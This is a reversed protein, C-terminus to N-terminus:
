RRSRERYQRLAEREAATLPGPAPIRLLTGPSLRDPDPLVDRNALWIRPWLDGDTYVLYAIARLDRDGAEVPYTGVYEDYEVAAAAEMEDAARAPPAAPRAAPAPQAVAIRQPAATRPAGLTVDAEAVIQVPRNREVVRLEVQSAAGPALDVLASDGQLSHFAPLSGADVTLRWRGPRLDALEFRGAADAVRRLTGGPGSLVVVANALASDVAGGAAVRRLTGTIRASRVLPVDLTAPRDGGTKVTLPGGAAPVRDLGVGLRDPEVAHEGDALGAVAWRGERDTIVARNGVRVPVGAVGRGTEADYVRGQARGKQHIPSVPVSVPIVYDVTQQPRTPGLPDDGVGARSRAVLRQGLPLGQELSIDLMAGSTGEPLRNGTASVRLLTLGGIRLAGDVTGTWGQRPEVPEAARGQQRRLSVSLSSGGRAGIGAQLTLRRYDDSEGTLRDLATGAEIGPHVWARGSRLTGEASFGQASRDYAGTFLEGSREEHNWRVSLWSRWGIGLRLSRREGPELAAPGLFTVADRRRLAGAEVRLGGAPMAWLSAADERAGRERGPYTSDVDVHRVGASIRPRSIQVRALRATGGGTGSAVEVEATGGRVPRVVGRASAVTGSDRGTRRLVAGEVQAAAGGVALSAGRATSALPSRRDRAAFGALTLPGASVRGGAGFGFVGPETLPTLAFANDGLQVDWRRAGVALRYLDTEGPFGPRDDARRLELDVSPSGEGGLLGSASLAPVVSGGGDLGNMRLRLQVPLRHFATGSGASPPVVEVRAAAAASASTDAAPTARLTLVSTYRADRRGGSRVRVRVERSEGAALAVEGGDVAEAQLGRDALPALVVREAVNGGNRLLFTAAYGDGAVAFRPADAPTVTLRHRVAVRIAASDSAESGGARAAYRVSYAGARADSPVLVAVIRTEAQGAALTWPEEPTVMRWSAPLTVTPRVSAPAAAGNLVRFVVTVPAGASAAVVADGRREVRVGGQAAAPAAAALLLAFLIAKAARRLPHV